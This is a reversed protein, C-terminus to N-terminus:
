KKKEAADREEAAKKLLETQKPYWYKLHCSECAEDLTNGADLIGEANQEEAAKKLLAAAAYLEDAAKDWSVPDADMLKKTGEPEEEVGPTTSKTGPRAVPRGPIKLMNTAEMILIANRRVVRWEEDTKPAKDQIGKASVNTSVSEWIFDASPDIVSDMIDQIPIGTQYNVAVPTPAPAPGSCATAAILLGTLTASALYTRMSFSELM